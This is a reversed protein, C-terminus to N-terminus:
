CQSRRFATQPRAGGERKARAPACLMDACLMRMPVIVRFRVTGPTLLGHVRSGAPCWVLLYFHAEYRGDAAMSERLSVKTPSARQRGQLTGLVRFRARDCSARPVPGVWALPCSGRALLASMLIM